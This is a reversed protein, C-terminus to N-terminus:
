QRPKRVADPSKRRDRGRPAGGTSGRRRTPAPRPQSPSAVEAAPTDAVTHREDGAVPDEFYDVVATQAGAALVRRVVSTMTAPDNDFGGHTISRTRADAPTAEGTVAFCVDAVQQTGALGFFRVLRLDRRLGAQMGLLPTPVASEFANSVLYLLSKGYPRLSGDAREHEDDMTFMTLRTIPRGPGTLPLLQEKFQETTIAPALFHLSRVDVPPLGAPAQAVLLPLFEALLISGASHGVAHFEVTGGTERWLGASLDAVLRGGGDAAVTNAASTKM